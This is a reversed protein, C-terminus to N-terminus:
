RIKHRKNLKYMNEHMHKNIYGTFIDDPSLYFYSSFSQAKNHKKKGRNIHKM